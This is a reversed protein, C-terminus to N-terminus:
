CAMGGFVAAVGSGTARCSGAGELVALRDEFMKGTPNGYRSYVFVDAKDRFASAAEEASSYVFGSTM